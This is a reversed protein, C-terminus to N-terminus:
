EIFPTSKLLRGVVNVDSAVPCAVFLTINECTVALYTRM